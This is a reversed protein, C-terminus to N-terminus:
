FRGRRLEDMITSLEGMLYVGSFHMRDFVAQASIGAVRSLLREASITSDAPEPMQGLAVAKTIDDQFLRRTEALRTRQVAQVQPDNSSWFRLRLRWERRAVPSVPLFCRIRAELADLGEKGQLVNQERSLYRRNLWDLASEIVEAKNHFHHEVLGRTAGARRAIERITAKEIGESAIVEAAIRAIFERREDSDVIKPM